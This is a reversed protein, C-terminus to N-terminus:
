LSIDVRDGIKINNKDCWGANVELVRDVDVNPYYRTLDSDNEVPLNKTIDVIQNNNIWIIDIPFKMNNMWFGPRNASDFIFLMGQNQDILNFASLGTEREMETQAIYADIKQDNITVTGKNWQTGPSKAKNASNVFYFAALAACALFLIIVRSKSGQPRSM